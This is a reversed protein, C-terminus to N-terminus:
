LASGSTPVRYPSLSSYRILRWGATLGTPQTTLALYRGVHKIQVRCNARSHIRVINPCSALTSSALPTGVPHTNVNDNGPIQCLSKHEQSCRRLLPRHQPSDQLRLCGAGGLVAPVWKM